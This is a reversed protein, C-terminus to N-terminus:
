KGMMTKLIAAQIEEGKTMLQMATAFDNYGEKFVKWKAAVNGTCVMM